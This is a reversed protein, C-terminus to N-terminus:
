KGFYRDYQAQRVALVEQLGMANLEDVREKRAATLRQPGHPAGNGQEERYPSLIICTQCITRAKGSKRLRMCNGKEGALKVHGRM